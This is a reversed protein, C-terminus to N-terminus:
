ESKRELEKIKQELEEDSLNEFLDKGDKGTVENSYKNKWHTPDGNTLTFIIAATDPLIHKETTIMEKIKGKPKGDKDKEKTPISTIKTETVTYGTIKKKLSKKAEVVMRAMREDEAAEIADVFEPHKRKWRGFITEDIGVISCIERQTYTDARILETIREVMAKNYKAM